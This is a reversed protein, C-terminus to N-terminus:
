GKAAVRTTERAFWDITVRLGEEAGMKPEWGLLKRALVAKTAKHGGWGREAIDARGATLKEAIEQLPALRVEASLRLWERLRAM